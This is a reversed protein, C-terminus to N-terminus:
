SLDQQLMIHNDNTNVKEFSLVSIPLERILKFSLVIKDQTPM